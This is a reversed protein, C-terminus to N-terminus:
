ADCFIDPQWIKADLAASSKGTSESL